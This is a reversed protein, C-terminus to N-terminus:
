FIVHWCNKDLQYGAREVARRVILRSLRRSRRSIKSLESNYDNYWGAYVKDNGIWIQPVYVRVTKGFKEARVGAKRLKAAVKTALKDEATVKSRKRAAATKSTVTKVPVVTCQELWECGAYRAQEKEALDRRSSFTAGWGNTKSNKSTKNKFVMAWTYQRTQSSRSIITGDPCTAEFYTTM